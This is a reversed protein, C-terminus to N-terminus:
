PKFILISPHRPSITPPQTALYSNRHQLELPFAHPAYKLNSFLQSSSCFMLWSLLMFIFYCLMLSCALCCIIYQHRDHYGVNPNDLAILNAKYIWNLASHLVYILKVKPTTDRVQFEICWCYQMGNIGCEMPTAYVQWKWVCMSIFYSVRSM